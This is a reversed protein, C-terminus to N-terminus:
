QASSRAGALRSHRRRLVVVVVIAGLMVLVVAVSTWSVALASFEDVSADPIPVADEGVALASVEITGFLLMLPAVPAADVNGTNELTYTVGLRRPPIRRIGSATTFRRIPKALAHHSVHSVV